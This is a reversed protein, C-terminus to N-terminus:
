DYRIRPDIVAYAVDTLFIMAVYLITFMLVVGQLIPFDNDFVAKIAMQGMGPWAFISEVVVSGTLFGTLILTSATLPQILANRFAHKWIILRNSVGKARALKVFESDLVELMATRTLRLYGAMAGWALTIAPLFMYRLDWSGEGRTAVPFWGLRVSVILILVIGLWFAPIAQGFLAFARGIYDFTSGRRVASLVGLPVGILTAMLWAVISLQITAGMKQTIVRSVPKEDLITEGLDGRMARGLWLAYQVAVPKDIGIKKRLAAEQEPSFGYGGPKAYLLIPDGSARSLFFVAATAAVVTLIALIFRRVLFRRM